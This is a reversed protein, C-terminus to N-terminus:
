CNNYKLVTYIELGFRNRVVQKKESGSPKARCHAKSFINQEPDEGVGLGPTGEHSSEAKSPQSPRM